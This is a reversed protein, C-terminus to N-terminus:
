ALPHVAIVIRGGYVGSQPTYAGFPKMFGKPAYSLFAKANKDYPPRYLLKKVIARNWHM